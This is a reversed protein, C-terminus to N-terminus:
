HRILQIRIPGTGLGFTQHPFRHAALPGDDPVVAGAPAFRRLTARLRLDQESGVPQLVPSEEILVLCPQFDLQSWHKDFLTTAEKDKAFKHLVEGGLLRLRVQLADCRVSAYEDGVDITEATQRYHERLRAYGAEDLFASEGSRFSVRKVCSPVSAAVLRRLFLEAADLMRALDYRPGVAEVVDGVIKAESIM